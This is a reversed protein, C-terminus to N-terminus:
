KGGAADAGMAAANQGPMGQPMMGPMQGNNMAGMPQAPYQRPTMNMQPNYGSNSMNRQQMPYGNAPYQGGQQFQPMPQPFAPNRMPTMPGFNPNQGGQNPPMNPIYQGPPPPQHGQQSGQHSMSHSMPLGMGGRSPSNAFGGPMNPQMQYANFHPQAHGPMPSQMHPTNMHPTMPFQPVGAQMPPVHMNRMGMAPSMGPGLSGGQSHQQVMMHGGMQVPQQMGYGPFHGPMGQGPMGPHMNNYAMAPHGMRPSPAVSAASAFQMRPDEYAQNPGAMYSQNPPFRPPTQHATPPAGNVPAQLHAPLQHQHPMNPLGANNPTHMPSVSSMPPPVSKAFMDKYSKDVTSEWTPPTRFAHPIGGNNAYKTKKEEEPTEELMRKVPNFTDALSVREDVSKIKKGAPFFIAPDTKPRSASVSPRKVNASAASSPGTPVFTSAGPNPKFEMAKVNLAKGSIASTPSSIGQDVSPKRTDRIPLPSPLNPAAFGSRNYQAQNAAVRQSLQGPGRPSQLAPHQARLAQPARQRHASPSAPEAGAQPATPITRQAKPDTATVTAQSAAPSAAQSISRQEKELAQQKAKEVILEQKEKDKALIPVLDQPVPTYLKFNQAFKKLDNLKVSKEQRATERKREQKNRTQEEMRLRESYKFQKFSDLVKREINETVGEAPASKQAPAAQQPVSPTLAATTAPTPAATTSPTATAVTLPVAAEQSPVTIKPLTDAVQTKQQEKETPATTDTADTADKAAPAPRSM